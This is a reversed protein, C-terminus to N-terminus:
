HQRMDQLYVDRHDECMSQGGMTVIAPLECPELLYNWPDDEDTPVTEVHGCLLEGAFAMSTFQTKNQQISKPKEILYRLFFGASVLSAGLLTAVVDQV